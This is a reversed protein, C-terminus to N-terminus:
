RGSFFCLPAAGYVLHIITYVFFSRFRFVGKSPSKAQWTSRGTKSSSAGAQKGTTATNEDSRGRSGNEQRSPLATTGGAARCPKVVLYKGELEDGNFDLAANYAEETVFTIFVLGRFNGSDPFTLMTLSQIDGCEGWCERIQEETYWFPMGGVYVRRPVFDQMTNRPPGPLQEQEPEEAVHEEPQVNEHEAQEPEAAPKQQVEVSVVADDHKEVAATDTEGPEIPQPLSFSFQFSKRKQASKPDAASIGLRARIDEAEQKNNTSHPQIGQPGPSAEAWGSPLKQAEALVAHETGGTAETKRRKKKKKKEGKRDDEPLIQSVAAEAQEIRKAKKKKKETANVDDSLTEPPKEAGLDDTARGKKRKRKKDDESCM